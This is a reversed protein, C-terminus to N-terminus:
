MSREYSWIGNWILFNIQVYQAVVLMVFWVNTRKKSITYVSAELNDALIL